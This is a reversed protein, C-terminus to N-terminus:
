RHAIIAAALFLPIFGVFFMAAVWPKEEQAHAKRLLAETVFYALAISGFGEIGVSLDAPGSHAWVGLGAGAIVGLGLLAPAAIRKLPGWEGEAMEDSLTMGLLAFEPALAVVFVVAVPSKFAISLGILIGDTLVDAIIFPALAAGRKKKKWVRILMMFLLGIVMGAAMAGYATTKLLRQLVDAVLGAFVTGAALHQVVVQTRQGPKWAASCLGGFTLATL